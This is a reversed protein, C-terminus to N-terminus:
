DYFGLIPVRISFVKRVDSIEDAWALILNDNVRRMQPVNRSINSRGVTQVRSLKGDVTLTRINIDYSSEDNSELWSVVYSTSDIIAVGVGGLATKSAIVVPKDFTEAANKSTAAQVVTQGDPASFWAAVVLDGEAAIAPGNVPCGEIVWHDSAVSKGPQWAGDSYRSVYVDRVEGATRDRYIVVPGEGTVAVDTQCCDCVLDDLEAEDLLSGDPAVTAARLTMGNATPDAGAENVTKRGDLWIMGAAGNVSFVSVFGHETPTGDDHPSTTESWSKGGDTSRATVVDYAYTKDASYRLWHAFLVDGALPTVAPRDAWNVFMRADAIVDNAPQWAGLEFTSFRLTTTDKGREMWSLTAGDTSSQSLRPGHSTAGAPVTIPFPVGLESLSQETCATTALATLVILLQLHGRM